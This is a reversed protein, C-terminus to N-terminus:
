RRRSQRAGPLLAHFVSRVRQSLVQASASFETSVPVPDTIDGLHVVFEPNMANVRAVLNNYMAALKNGAADNGDFSLSEKRTLHTDAVIAFSFLPRDNDNNVM